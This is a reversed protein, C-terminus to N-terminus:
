QLETCDPCLTTFINCNSWLYGVNSIRRLVSAVNTYCQFMSFSFVNHNQLGSKLKRDISKNCGKHSNFTSGYGVNLCHQCWTTLKVSKYDTEERTSFMEFKKALKLSIKNWIKRKILANKQNINFFSTATYLNLTNSCKALQSTKPSSPILANRKRACIKSKSANLYKPSLFLVFFVSLIWLSKSSNSTKM